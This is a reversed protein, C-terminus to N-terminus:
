RRPAPFRGAWVADLGPRLAGLAAWQRARKRVRAAGVFSGLAAFM